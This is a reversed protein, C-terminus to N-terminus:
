LQKSCCKPFSYTNKTNFLEEVQELTRGKTEKIFLVIIILGVLNIAALTLWAGWNGVLASYSLFGGTIFVAAMWSCAVVIGGAVGRVQLPLYESLLVWPVPGLGFSFALIFVVVSTAALPYLYSNCVGTGVPDKEITSFLTGNITTSCAEPRTFYSHFVLMVSGTFMGAASVSALFKRGLREILLSALVTGIVLSAGVTYISTLDPNPAGAAQFIHAAYAVVTSGGGCLQQFVYLFTVLLFPVRHSKRCMLLRLKQGVSPENKPLSSLIANMESTVESKNKPGRLYKLVAIARPKDNLKLVLWRPTEPIWVALLMFVILVGIPVLALNYYEFKPISGLGYLVLIGITLSLESLTGLMSRLETPSIEGIYM